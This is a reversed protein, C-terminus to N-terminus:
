LGTILLAMFPFSSILRCLSGQESIKLPKKIALKYCVIQERLRAQPFEVHVMVILRCNLFTWFRVQGGWVPKQVLDQCYKEFETESLPEGTRPNSLFPLFDDVHRRLVDAVGRRLEAVNQTVGAVIKLQHAVSNYLCDGDSTIDHISLQRRSNSFYSIFFHFNCKRWLKSFLFYFGLPNSGLVKALTGGSDVLNSCSFFVILWRM